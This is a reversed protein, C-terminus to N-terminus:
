EWASKLVHVALSPVKVEGGEASLSLSRNDPAVLVAASLAVEGGNGFVEVSGRDVLVQLRVTGDRPRLPAAKGQCQVERKRVDYVVPVGRLNLTVRAADGPRLEARVDFLEGKVGALPNDGAKVGFEKWVYKRDNLREIEKVPAAFMRVGDGTTKLTLECPFTMQQNFPMGPFAIGNGWGIQIRRGGTDGEFTQAAYFNGYWVRHKGSEKTFKKGDLDGLVYQGDAAYLVWKVKKADGDVPLPFLDPCEFFGGVRSQYEWKKLDASTYFAIDRAPGKEDYVAMVWRRTPAHWLLKPDRGQHRVVPNGEYEAWGRGLDNSFAICEGRGTSTYALVLLTAKGKRWGSTNDSDVVASGSFCWDGFQRPYLAVPLEKWRVLDRSVAHGWHMNGWAWGYPNHQYFLHYEGNAYVLGNPDNLWGRRSTFHLQPRHRERYLDAAGAVADAHTVGELAKSGGPLKVEVTLKQGRFASVDSFAWFDPRGDALEIEFERVAKDGVLFRMQRKAAGTKVPLNLYRKGVTFERRVPEVTRKRDGQVIHDVNIHGWGGTAADVVELVVTKGQLDVVDWSHWDLQESGGPRDNPGTASRVVKGAALLNVCTKGPHKGGGVLFNIFRREVKFPPSTLTGTTRDGGRFSNVLGRGLFGSVPMQGPLTGRAPATGFAEGEAKWEGYTDGEFDALLVDPREAAPLCLLVQLTFAGLM